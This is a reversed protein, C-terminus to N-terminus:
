SVGSCFARFCCRFFNPKWNLSISDTLHACMSLLLVYSCLGLLSRNKIFDPFNSILSRDCMIMIESYLYKGLTPSSILVQFIIKSTACLFTVFNLHGKIKPVLTYNKRTVGFGPWGTIVANGLSPQLSPHLQSM